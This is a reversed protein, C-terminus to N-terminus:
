SMKEAKVFIPVMAAESVRFTPAGIITLIASIAYSHTTLSIFSSRDNSFIDDLLLKKRTVHEESTEYADSRWLTDTEPFGDEIIYEPYSQAIWSRPSRKDCTHDTALERLREKVTPNLSRGCKAMVPAYVLKTTELCRALPSTYVSDPVPLGDRQVGDIWFQALTEAQKIGEDVLHADAWELDGDGDLHSWQSKWAASGVKEMVVNHVGIGHRVLYLLKYSIGDPSNKNLHEVYRAFRSWQPLDKSTPDPDTDYCQGVLGLQPQTTVKGDPITKGLESYDVFFGPVMSFKYNPHM